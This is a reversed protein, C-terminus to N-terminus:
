CLSFLLIYRLVGRIGGAEANYGVIAGTTERPSRKVADKGGNGAGPDRARRHGRGIPTQSVYDGDWRAGDRYSRSCM